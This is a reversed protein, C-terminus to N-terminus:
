RQIIAVQRLLVDPSVRNNTSSGAWSILENFELMDRLKEVALNVDTETKAGLM